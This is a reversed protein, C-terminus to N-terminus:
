QSMQNPAPLRWDDGQLSMRLQDTYRGLLGAAPGPVNSIGISIMNDLVTFPAAAMM